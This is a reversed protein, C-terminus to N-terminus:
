QIAKQYMVNNTKNEPAYIFSISPIGVRSYAVYLQGHSFCPNELNIGCVNLSQSKSKNLSMAFALQVPNQLRKFNFPLDNPIMPILPILSSKGKYKGKFITAEIANNMLKKVALRTGNCLRPQNINRLIIIVVSGVKLQLKHPPLGSFKLSNLLMTNVSKYTM